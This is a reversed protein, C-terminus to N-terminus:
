NTKLEPLRAISRRLLSCYNSDVQPAAILYLDPALWDPMWRDAAQRVRAALEEVTTKDLGVKM